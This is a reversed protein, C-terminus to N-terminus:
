PPHGRPHGGPLMRMSVGCPSAAMTRRRTAQILQTIPIVYISHGYSMRRRSWPQQEDEAERSPAGALPHLSPSLNLAVSHERQSTGTVNKGIVGDILFPHLPEGGRDASYLVPM